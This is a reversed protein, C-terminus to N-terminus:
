KVFWKRIGLKYRGMLRRIRVFPYLPSFSDPLAVYKWDEWDPTIARRLYYRARDSFRERAQIYFLEEKIDPLTPMKSFDPFNLKQCLIRDVAQETLMEVSRDDLCRHFLSAPLDVDFLTKALSIGLLLVRESGIQKATKLLDDWDMENLEILRAVDCVMSLRKWYHRTGHECFILLMDENSLSLVKRGSLTIYKAREWVNTLDLNFSYIRPSVEWHLEVNFGGTIHSFLYHHQSKISHMEQSPTMIQDFQYGELLLIKKVKQVDERHVLIDLDDYQRCKIDSYLIQALIPGKYPIAPIGQTTIKDYLSIIESTMLMNFQIIHLFSLKLDELVTPPVTIESSSTIQTYLFPIVRHYRAARILYDWDITANQPFEAINNQNIYKKAFSVLLEHEPIIPNKIM